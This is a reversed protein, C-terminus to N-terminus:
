SGGAGGISFCLPPIALYRGKAKEVRSIRATSRLVGPNVFRCFLRKPRRKGATRLVSRWPLRLDVGAVSLGPTPLVFRIFTDNVRVVLQGPNDQLSYVSDTDVGILLLFQDILYRSNKLADFLRGVSDVLCHCLQACYASLLPFTAEGPQNIIV